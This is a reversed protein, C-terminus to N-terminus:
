VYYKKLRIGHIQGNTASSSNDSTGAFLNKFSIEIDNFMQKGLGKKGYYTSTGALRQRISYNVNQKLAVEKELTIYQFPENPQHQLTIDMSVVLNQDELIELPGQVEGKKSPLYLAVAVLTASQTVTFSIGDQKGTHSWWDARPIESMRQIDFTLSRARKTAPFNCTTETTVIDQIIHLKEDATLLNDKSVSCVFTDVSMSPFRILSLCDGLATRLSSGGDEQVEVKQEKSTKDKGSNEEAWTKCALYVEEEGTVGMDNLELLAKLGNRSLSLFGPSKFVNSTERSIVSLCNQKLETEEFTLAQDLVTCVNDVDVNHHLYTNCKEVLDPLDYMKAVFLLRLVTDGDVACTGNYLFRFTSSICICLLYLTIVYFLFHFRIISTRPRQM